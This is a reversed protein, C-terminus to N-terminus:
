VVSLLAILFLLVLSGVIPVWLWKPMKWFNARDQSFFRHRRMTREHLAKADDFKRHLDQSVTRLEEATKRLQEPSIEDDKTM